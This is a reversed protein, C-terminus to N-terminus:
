NTAKHHLLKSTSYDFLGIKLGANFLVGQLVNKTLMATSNNNLDIPIRYYAGAYVKVFKFLNAELQVGPQILLFEARSGRDIPKRDSKHMDMITDYASMTNSASDARLSGSGIILPFSVHVSSNPKFTYEMKLGLSSSSLLLPSVGSPSYKPDLSEMQHMGISFTNNFVLMVSYGGFSTFQNKLQGYQYEPAVYLGINSVKSLHFLTKTESETEQAFSSTTFAAVIAALVIMSKKEM